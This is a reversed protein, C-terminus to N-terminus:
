LGTSEFKRRLEVNYLLDQYMEEVSGDRVELDMNFSMTRIMDETVRHRMEQLIVLKQDYDGADLFDLVRPDIGNETTGENKPNLMAEELSDIDEMVYDNSKKIIEEKVGSQVPEAFAPKTSPMGDWKEFRMNQTAAPYKVRDVPEMFMLLPRVYIKNDGYLAQYVVMEEGTESHEALCLVKYLNGKFHRYIEGIEIQM